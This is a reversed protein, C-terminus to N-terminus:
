REERKEQMKEGILGERRWGIVPRFAIGRKGKRGRRNGM